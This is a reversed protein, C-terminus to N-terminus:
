GWNTQYPAPYSGGAIPPSYYGGGTQPINQILGSGIGALNGITSGYSSALQKGRDMAIQGVNSAYSAGQGAMNTATTQGVGALNALRNAYTNFEGAALNGAYAIEAKRTAGSDLYGGAAAGADVGGLGETLRFQYDPSKYFDAYPDVAPQASGPTFVGPAPTTGPTAGPQQRLIAATVAGPLGGYAAGQAVQPANINGAIPQQLAGTASGPAPAGAFNPQYTDLGYMSGLKNLASTGTVLWPQQNAQGIDFQRKSEATATDAAGEIAGAQASGAALAGGGAILSGGIIAASTGIPM